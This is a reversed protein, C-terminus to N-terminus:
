GSVDAIADAFLNERDIRAPLELDYGEEEAIQRLEDFAKALSVRQQRERWAEFDGFTGPEVLAAVLRNRTYILQPEDQAQRVVESFKQKAEGVKWRM